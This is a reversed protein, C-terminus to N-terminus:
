PRYGERVEKPIHHWLCRCLYRTPDTRSGVSQRWIKALDAASMTVVTDRRSNTGSCGAMVHLRGSPSQRLNM